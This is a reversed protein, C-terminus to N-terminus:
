MFIGILKNVTEEYGIKEFTGQKLFNNVQDIKSLAYDIKPNSGKVYAGINILDEAEAYRALVERLKGAADRHEDSVLNVMLRSVSHPVDIAPYHNRAALDRSLIIHGDLISRSHDAIPENFDDGEVLITYFATITGIVSTGSREMLRPMLAFVSPTYGKTTPPEGAALGIERQAMAFRTVSDMMLIVTKGQNRFYEAIATAVFAAKLRILPPQDSTAAVVVSKKLGEEGLSEEIFDRVERGREGVLAIVNVEAEANRAIMGMLTSKGVGSGSFIGIRQGRGLTLMGDIARIGVRIVETVRPRKVPDPPDADLPCEFDGLIPGKGDIQEGLGNLVRGLVDKGVKVMLPKGAAVVQSGPAIGATSGLPMLLVRNERFGVVEAHAERGEKELRISCIDGVSVGGVQAEIILGVVQVVKGIVRVLDTREVASHYKEFDIKM